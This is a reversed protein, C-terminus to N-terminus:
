KEPSGAADCRVGLVGIRMCTNMNSSKCVSFVTLGSTSRLPASCHPGHVASRHSTVSAPACARARARRGVPVTLACLALAAPVRPPPASRQLGDPM